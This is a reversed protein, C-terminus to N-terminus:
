MFCKCAKLLAALQHIECEDSNLRSPINLMDMEYRSLNGPDIYM